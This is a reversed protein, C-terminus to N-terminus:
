ENDLANDIARFLAALHKDRPKPLEHIVAYEDMISLVIDHLVTVPDDGEDPEYLSAAWALRHALEEKTLRSDSM